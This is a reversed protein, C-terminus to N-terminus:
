ISVDSTGQESSQFPIIINFAVGEVFTDKKQIDEGTIEISAKPNFFSRELQISGTRLRIWGKLEKLDRLVNTLGSGSSESKDTSNYKKFCQIVADREDDFKLEHQSLGTWRRAFGPGSDFVTIDLISIPKDDKPLWDAMFLALKGGGSSIIHELRSKQISASRFSVSRFNRELVNGNVDKRSHKHTNSFLERIIESLNSIVSDPLRYKKNPVVADLAKKTIQLFKGRGVIAGNNYFPNLNESNNGPAKISPIALYFGKFATSFDENRVKKIRDAAALLSTRRDIIEKTTTVVKESLSLAFIGYLSNCLDSYQNTDLPDNVHTHLVHNCDTRLWTAILQMLFGEIGFVGSTNLSNPIRLTIDPASTIDKNLLEIDKFNVDRPVTITAM